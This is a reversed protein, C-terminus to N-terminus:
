KFDEVPGAFTRPPFPKITLRQFELWLCTALIALTIGLVLLPMRRSPRALPAAPDRAAGDTLRPTVM